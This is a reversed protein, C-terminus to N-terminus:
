GYKKIEREIQIVVNKVWGCLMVLADRRHELNADFKDAYKFEGNKNFLASRLKEGHHSIGHEEFEALINEFNQKIDENAKLMDENSLWKFCLGASGDKLIEVVTLSEKSERSRTLKMVIVESYDFDYAERISAIRDKIKKLPNETSFASFVFPVKSRSFVYPVELPSDDKSLISKQVTLLFVNENKMEAPTKHVLDKFWGVEPLYTWNRWVVIKNKEM